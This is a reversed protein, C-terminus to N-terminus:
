AERKLIQNKGVQALNTVLQTDFGYNKMFDSRPVYGTNLYKAYHKQTTVLSKHRLMVASVWGIDEGHSFMMTAFTHRTNYLDIYHLGSRKILPKWYNDTISKSQQFAEGTKPAVFVAGNKLGTHRYQDKLAVEVPPLMDIYGVAHTKTTSVVGHSLSKSVRIKKSEFNIDGWELAMMEGTRMGTFFLTKLMNHLWGDCSSLVISVEDATYVEIDPEPLRPTKIGDFPNKDIIKDRLADALITQLTARINRVRSASLGRDLLKKQWLGLDSPMIEDLEMKGFEPVIYNMFAGHYDKVTKQKRYASGIELSKLGYNLVTYEPSLENSLLNEIVKYANENVWKLSAATAAKATVLRYRKAEAKIGKARLERAQGVTLTYDVYVKTGRIYANPLRKKMAGGNYSSTNLPRIPIKVM